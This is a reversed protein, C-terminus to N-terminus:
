HIVKPPELFGPVPHIKIQESTSTPLHCQQCAQRWPHTARLGLLGSPGHCSQCDDRMWTTHPIQPPAGPYARSGQTPAPIGVFNSQRFLSATQHTPQSEVHCQTCEALFPHSMRSARLGSAQWGDGHCALCAQASMQDIPHPVTPPAGNFARNERRKALAALKEEPSAASQPELASNSVLSSLDTRKQNETARIISALQLYETAPIVRSDIPQTQTATTSHSAAAQSAPQEGGSISSSAMGMPSAAKQLGPSQLGIFYGVIAVSAIVVAGITGYGTPKSDTM